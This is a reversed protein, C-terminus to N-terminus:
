SMKFLTKFTMKNELHIPAEVVNDLRLLQKLAENTAVPLWYLFYSPDQHEVALTAPHSFFREGFLQVKKIEESCVCM